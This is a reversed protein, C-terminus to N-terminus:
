LKFLKDHFVFFAILVLDTVNLAFICFCECRIVREICGYGCIFLIYGYLGSLIITQKNEM